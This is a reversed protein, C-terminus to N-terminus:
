CQTCVSALCWSNEWKYFSAMSWPKQNGPFKIKLSNCDPKNWNYKDTSKEIKSAVINFWALYKHAVQHDGSAYEM